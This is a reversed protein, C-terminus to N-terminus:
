HCLRSAFEREEKHRMNIVLEDYEFLGVSGVCGTLKLATESSVTAYVLSEFVPPLQLLGRLFLLNRKGFWGDKSDETRFIEALRLHIYM